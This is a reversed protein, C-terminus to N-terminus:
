YSNRPLIAAAGSAGGTDAVALAFCGLAGRANDEDLRAMEGSFSRKSASKQPAPIKGLAHWFLNRDHQTAAAGAPITPADM